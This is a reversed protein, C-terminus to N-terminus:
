PLLQDIQEVVTEPRDVQINHGTDDVAVLRASSSLSLWHDQGARWADDLRANEAAVLGWPHQTATMVIMPLAGLGDIEAVEDFAVVGALHEANNAPTSVNSCLEEYGAAATTGDDPVACLAAPWTAPSADILLLGMVETRYTAAFTVAEPGGFSHGVVLYPGTEGLSSLAAHLDDAQDSFTQSPPAPDSTGTGYRDYSCVRTQEAVTPSVANWIESSTEFGAILVATVSGSGSCRVHMRAGDVAVLEDVPTAPRAVPAPANTPAAPTPHTPVPQEAVARNPITPTEDNTRLVLYAVGIVAMVAVTLAGGSVIIRGLHGSRPTPQDHPPEPTVNETPEITKM